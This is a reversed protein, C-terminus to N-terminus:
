VEHVLHLDVYLVAPADATEASVVHADWIKDFLTRAQEPPMFAERNRNPPSSSPSSNPTTSRALRTPAASSARSCRGSPTATSPIAWSPPARPSPTAAQISASCWARAT